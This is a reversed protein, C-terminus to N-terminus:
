GMKCIFVNLSLGPSYRQGWTGWSPLTLVPITVWCGPSAWRELRRKPRQGETQGESQAPGMHDRTEANARGAAWFPRGEGGRGAKWVGGLTM